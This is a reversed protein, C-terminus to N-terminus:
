RGDSRGDRPAPSGARGGGAAKAAYMARDARALVEDVDTADGDIMGVGISVSVRVPPDGDLIPAAGIRAALDAAVSDARAHDVRGLAIGFEDGGLRGVADSGRVRETLLEGVRELARDGVQHGYSDNLRKFGDIDLMLLAASEGYRRTRRWLGDVEQEFRRRNWLGTLPDHDAMRRLEAELRDRDAELAGLARATSIGAIALAVAEALVIAALGITLGYDGGGVALEIAFGGLLPVVLAAPLVRRTAAGVAGGLVFPRLWWREPRLAAGGFVLLVFAILGQLSIKRVGEADWAYSGAFVYAIVSVLATATILAMTVTALTGWPRGRADYLLLWLAGLAFQGASEPEPRGPDHVGPPENLAVDIGLEVGFAYEALVLLMWGLVAAAIARAVTRGRGTPFRARLILAAGLAVLATSTAVTMLSSAGLLASRLRDADAAAGILGGIGVIAAAAGCPIALRRLSGALQWDIGAAYLRAVSM